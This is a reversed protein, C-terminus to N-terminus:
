DRFHEAEKRDLEAKALIILLTLIKVDKDHFIQSFARRLIEFLIAISYIIDFTGRSPTTNYLSFFLESNPFCMKVTPCFICVNSFINIEM